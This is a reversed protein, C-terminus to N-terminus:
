VKVSGLYKVFAAQYIPEFQFQPIPGGGELLATVWPRGPYYYTKSPDGFVPSYGGYHVIAAYDENYIIHIDNDSDIIVKRSAKLAGTDVIDRTDNIWNWVPSDMAEDLATELQKRVARVAFAHAKGIEKILLKELKDLNGVEPDKIIIDVGLNLVVETGDFNRIANRIEKRLNALNGRFERIGRTRVSYSM